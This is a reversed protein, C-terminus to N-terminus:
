DPQIKRQKKKRYPDADPIENDEIRAIAKIREIVQLSAAPLHTADQQEDSAAKQFIENQGMGTEDESVLFRGYREMFAKAAYQKGLDSGNFICRTGNDIFTVGYIEGTENERLLIRLGQNILRDSLEGISKSSILTKDLLHKIRLGYPKREEKGALFRKELNKLTPSSYISSAKIPIGIPAGQQDLICYVLGGKERMMTGEAGPWAIVNFQRLIANLEPLSTFKYSDVVERVIASIASKTERKGYIVQELRVPRLMYQGEKKQEEAKVLGYTNEIEKRIKESQNKGINHTEIRQGESNINVTAIHIHPHAADYHRYVLYPQNGFGIGTMYDMAILQLLEDNLKDQNSFNLTVHLANTKTRENMATLAEFRELKSKFSLQDQHRPFGAALLLSAEASAVKNENYNLIGRISKGSVIRAVM